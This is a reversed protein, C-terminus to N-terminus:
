RGKKRRLVRFSSAPIVTERRTQTRRTYAVGSDLTATEHDGIADALRAELEDREKRATKEERKLEEVRDDLELWAGGTLQVTGSERGPQYLARVSALTPVHLPVRHECVCRWFEAGKAVLIEQSRGDSAVDEWWLSNGGVCAAISACPSGTVLMQHQLQWWMEIPVGAAWREAQYSGVNKVELPIRGHRPHWTWADLTCLAWWHAKSRLQQRTKEVRRDAYRTSGYQEVIVPEMIHGWQINEFEDLDEPEQRGTKWSWLVAPGGEGHKPHHGLMMAVESAGVGTLRRDLWDPDDGQGVVDFPEAPQVPEATVAAKRAM